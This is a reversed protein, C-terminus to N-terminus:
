KANRERNESCCLALTNSVYNRTGRRIRLFRRGPGTEHVCACASMCTNPTNTHKCAAADAHPTKTDLLSLGAGTILPTRTHPVALRRVCDSPWVVAGGPKDKVHPSSFPPFPPPPIGESDKVRGKGRGMWGAKGGLFVGVKVVEGVVGRRWGVM